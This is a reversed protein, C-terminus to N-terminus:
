ISRQRFAKCMCTSRCCSLKSKTALPSRTSEPEAALRDVQEETPHPVYSERQSALGWQVSVAEM